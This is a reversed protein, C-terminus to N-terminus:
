LATNPTSIGLRLALFPDSSFLASWQELFAGRTAQLARKACVDFWLLPAVCLVAGHVSCSSKLVPTAKHVYMGGLLQARTSVM